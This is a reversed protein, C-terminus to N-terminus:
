QRAARERLLADVKEAALEERRAEQEALEAEMQELRTRAAALRQHQLDAKLALQDIALAELDARIEARKADTSAADHAALLARRRERLESRIEERETQRAEREILLAEVTQLAEQYREPDREQLRILREYRDPAYQQVAALLEAESRDEASATGSFILLALGLIITIPRM